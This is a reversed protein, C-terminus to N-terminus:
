ASLFFVDLNGACSVLNAAGTYFLPQNLAGPLCTSCASAGAESFTGALCQTCATATVHKINLEANLSVRELDGGEGAVSYYGASCTGCNKEGKSDVYQVQGPTCMTQCFPACLPCESRNLFVKVQVEPRACQREAESPYVLNASAKDAPFVLGLKGEYTFQMTPPLRATNQGIPSFSVPGNWTQAVINGERMYSRIGEYPDRLFNAPDPLPRFYFFTVIVQLFISTQAEVLDLPVIGTGAACVFPVFSPLQTYEDYTVKLLGDKMDVMQEKALQTSGLVGRCLTGFGSCSELPLAATMGPQLAGGWPVNVAWIAKFTYREQNALLYRLIFDFDLNNISTIQLLCSNCAQRALGCLFDSGVVPRLACVLIESKNGIAFDLHTMLTNNITV